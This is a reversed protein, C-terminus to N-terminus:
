ASVESLYLEVCVWKLLFNDLACNIYLYAYILRSLLFLIVNSKLFFGILM